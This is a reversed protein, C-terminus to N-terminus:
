PRATSPGDAEAVKWTEEASSLGYSLLRQASELSLHRCVLVSDGRHQSQSAEVSVCGSKRWPCGFTMGTMALPVSSLTPSHYAIGRARRLRALSRGFRSPSSSM